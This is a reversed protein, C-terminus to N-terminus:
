EGTVSETVKVPVLLRSVPGPARPSWARALDAGERGDDVCRCLRYMYMYIEVYANVYVYIYMCVCVCVCIYIYIYIYVYM